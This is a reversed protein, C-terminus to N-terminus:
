ALFALPAGDAEADLGAAPAPGDALAGVLAHADVHRAKVITHLALDPAARWLPGANPLPERPPHPCRGPSRPPRRAAPSAAPAALTPWCGRHEGIPARLARS